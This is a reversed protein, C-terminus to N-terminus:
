WLLQYDDKGEMGRLLQDSSWNLGLMDDFRNGCRVLGDLSRELYRLPTRFPIYHPPVGFEDLWALSIFSLTTQCPDGFYSTTRIM